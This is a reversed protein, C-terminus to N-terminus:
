IEKLEEVEEKKYLFSSGERERERERERESEKEKVNERCSEGERCKRIKEIAGLDLFVEKTSELLM